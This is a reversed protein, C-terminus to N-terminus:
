LISETDDDEEPVNVPLYDPEPIIVSHEGVGDVTALKITGMHRYDELFDAIKQTKFPFRQADVRKKYIARLDSIAYESKERSLVAEVIVKQWESLSNYVIKWFREGALHYFAGYEEVYCHQKLWFGVERLFEIDDFLARFKDIKDQSWVDRLRKETLDPYSFRRDDYVLFNDSIDNNNIIYSNFTEVNKEADHGKREINQDKNIYSKLRNVQRGNEIRLEDLLILRARDLVSNFGEDFFRENAKRYYEEGVLKGILDCLLNKGAGKKGNLCLYTENRSFIAQHMWHYVFRRQDKNPILHEMFEAFIIPPRDVLYKGELEPDLRGEENCRWPPPTFCNFEVVKQGEFMILRKEFDNYPNFSFTALKAGRDLILKRQHTSLTKLYADPHMQSIIRIKNNFVVKKGSKYDLVLEFEATNIDSGDFADSSYVTQERDYAFYADWFKRTWEAKEKDTFKWVGAKQVYEAFFDYKDLCHQFFELTDLIRGDLYVKTKSKSSIKAKLYFNEILEQVQGM